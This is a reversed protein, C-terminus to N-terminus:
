KGTLCVMNNIQNTIETLTDFGAVDYFYAPDTVIAKM